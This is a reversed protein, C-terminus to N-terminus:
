AFNDFFPIIDKGYIKIIDTNEWLTLIDEYKREDLRCELLIRLLCRVCDFITRISSIDLIM